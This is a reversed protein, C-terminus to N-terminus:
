LLLLLLLRSGNRLCSVLMSGVCLLKARVDSDIKKRFYRALTIVYLDNRKRQCNCFSWIHPKRTMCFEVFILFTNVFRCTLNRHVLILWPVRLTSRACDWIEEKLTEDASLEKRLAQIAGSISARELLDKRVAVSQAADEEIVMEDGAAHNKVQVNGTLAISGFGRGIARVLRHRIFPSPDNRLTFFIFKVLPPHRLAGLNLLIDFAQARLVDFVGERTSLLLEGFTLTGIGMLSLQEKAALAAQSVTYQFSPVWRDMRL